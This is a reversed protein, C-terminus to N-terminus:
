QYRLDKSESVTPCRENFLSWIDKLTLAFQRIGRGIWKIGKWTKIFPYAISMFFKEVKEEHIRDKKMLGLTSEKAEEFSSGQLIQMFIFRRYKESHAFDWLSKYAISSLIKLSSENMNKIAFKVFEPTKDEDSGRIEFVRVISKYKSIVRQFDKESLSMLWPNQMYLKRMKRSYSKFSRGTLNIPSTFYKTRIYAKEMLDITKTNIKRTMIFMVVVSFLAFVCFVGLIPLFSLDFSIQSLFKWFGLVFAVSFVGLFIFAYIKIFLTIMKDKKAYEEEKAFWDTTYMNYFMFVFPLALFSFILILWKYEFCAKIFWLSSDLFWLIFPKTVYADFLNIAFVGGLIILLVDWIKRIAKNKTNIFRFFGFVFTFNFLTTQLVGSHFITEMFGYYALFFMTITDITEIFIFYVLWLVFFCGITILCYKLIQVMIQFWKQLALYDGIREILDTFRNKFDEFFLEGLFNGIFKFFLIGGTVIGFGFGISAWLLCYFPTYALFFLAIGNIWTFSSLAVDSFLFPKLVMFSGIPSIIWFYLHFLLTAWFGPCVHNKLYVDRKIRFSFISRATRYMGWYVGDEQNVIFDSIHEKISLFRTWKKNTIKTDDNVGGPYLSFGFDIGLLNFAWAGKSEYRNYPIFEANLLKKVNIFGFIVLILDWIKGYFIQPVKPKEGHLNGYLSEFTEDIAKKQNDELRRFFSEFSMFDINERWLLKRWVKDPLCEIKTIRKIHMNFRLSHEDVAQYIELADVTNEIQM